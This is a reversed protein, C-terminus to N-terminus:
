TAARAPVPEAGPVPDNPSVQRPDNVLAGPPAEIPGDLLPDSTERMWHELRERLEALVVSHADDAALDRMETPDLVLDYLQETPVIQEGWGGRVWLDKTASDDCNALVPRDFDGFRRIYKWRETRAARLPQYAAHFTM